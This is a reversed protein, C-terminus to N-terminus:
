KYRELVAMSAKFDAENFIELTLVREKEPEFRLRAIIFALLDPPFYSLAVHDRDGNVGHLHIVRCHDLYREFHRPVSRHGLLLHGIDLCVSLAQDRVIDFVWEFPYSLTEVCLLTPDIGTKLLARVSDSLAEQWRNRDDEPIDRGVSGNFHVIYGFPDLDATLDFIRRCQDISAHRRTDDPSGLAIDLPLHVTYTLDWRRGLRTLEDITERNPLNSIDESEFLLLEVDDVKPGLYTVNPLIDAPIIFSTTGIRYARSPRSTSM